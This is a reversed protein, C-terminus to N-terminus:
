VLLLVYHMKLTIANLEGQHNDVCQGCTRRCLEIEFKDDCRSFKCFYPSSDKCLESGRPIGSKDPQTLVPIEPIVPKESLPAPLSIPNPSFCM